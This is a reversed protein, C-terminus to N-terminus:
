SSLRACPTAPPSTTPRRAWPRCSSGNRRTRNDRDMGTGGTQGANDLEDSRGTSVFLSARAAEGGGAATLNLSRDRSRGDFGTKLGFHHNGSGLYDSPNKTILSIM